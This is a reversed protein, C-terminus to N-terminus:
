PPWWCSRAPPRLMEPPDQDMSGFMAGPWNTPRCPSNAKLRCVFSASFNRAAPWRFRCVACPSAGPALPACGPWACRAARTAKFFSRVEGAVRERCPGTLSGNELRDLRLELGNDGLVVKLSSQGLELYLGPSNMFDFGKM